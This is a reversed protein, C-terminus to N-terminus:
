IQSLAFGLDALLDEPSELGISLRIVDAGAGAATRQEDTLQRHTTSAPHLILSRSDGVNALHSFLEVAEVVRVGAAFGGVVGFTFVAGGTGSRLYKDALAKYASSQLGAYSVWAVKPQSELFKAVALANACQREMRVALTECGNITLWAHLPAMTAGLDRLGVAHSFMTFALDGFTEAFVLGHYAPEPKGLSPFKEAQAVWDFKGSDIVVGGLASGQGSLFKTTSHVVLDAGHEIPRCLYPTALTNDVIFPVGAERALESLGRLDSVVGGPNALSECFLARVSADQLAARVQAMDGVDVFACNWSYKKITKGFQTLTGGYLKNSAVITSGPQMLAFLALMQAAHGSSTCTAGRGGEMNALREELASVTPNSLRSYINGFTSLNFLDAAHDVSEFVYSTNQVIPTVRSGTSADPAAGAHVARTEFGSFVPKEGVLNTQTTSPVGIPRRKSSIVGSDFGHQGLERFLRSYEIKPCRDMVVKLGAKKAKEAAADNRVGLQMWVVSIGRSSKLEIAKDVIPGAAESSRFIDVMDIKVDTPIETLESYVKEGLIEKSKAAPNVPIVRYGKIQLYKMAFYSPRNWNESAGVMAVVKVSRLVDKIFEDPYSLPEPDSSSVANAALVHRSVALTRRHAAMTNNTPM